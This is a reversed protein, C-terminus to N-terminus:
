KAQGTGTREVVLDKIVKRRSVPEITVDASVPTQCLLGPRGNIVATCKACIGLSCGSHDYYSISGDLNEYIYDLIDMASMGPELPVRYEQFRPKSDLAPDFRFVRVTIPSDSM